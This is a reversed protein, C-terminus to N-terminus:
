IEASLIPKSLSRHLRLDFLELESRGAVNWALAAVTGQENVQFSELEGDTRSALIDIDGDVGEGSLKLRGFALLDRGKNTTLYVSRGDSSFRGWFRGPPDHPTLLTEKGSALDVLYLNNDGRGVVRSLLARKKDRTLDILSATGPSQGVIKMEGRDLDYIYPDIASGNRRNSALTLWHGDRSWIGPQNTEKGGETLRKLDTGDPRVLYLQVNMGGGPALSLLIWSGDPSWSLTGVPDDFATILEPWGGDTPVTWAQPIGTVNSIFAIRKGDPSFTPSSSSGIKSMLSVTRELEAPDNSVGARAEGLIALPLLCARLLQRM